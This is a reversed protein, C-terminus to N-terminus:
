GFGRDDFALQQDEIPRSFPRGFRRGASRATAADKRQKSALMAFAAFATGTAVRYDVRDWRAGEQRNPLRRTQPPGRFLQDVAEVTAPVRRSRPLPGSLGCQVIDAVPQSRDKEM